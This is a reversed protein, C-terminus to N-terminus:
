DPCNTFAPPGVPATGSSFVLTGESDRVDYSCEDLWPGERQFVTTICDPTTVLFTDQVLGTEPVLSALVNEDHDLVNLRNGGWGDGWSDFLSVEYTEESVADDDDDDDLLEDAPPGENTAPLLASAECGALVPFAFVLLLPLHRHELTPM